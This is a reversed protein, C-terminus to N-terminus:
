RRPSALAYGKPFFRLQAMPQILPDLGFHHRQGKKRKKKEKEKETKRKHIKCFAGL